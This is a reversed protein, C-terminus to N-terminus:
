VTHWGTLFSSAVQKDVLEPSVRGASERQLFFGWIFGWCVRTAMWLLMAAAEKWLFNRATCSSLLWNFHWRHRHSSFFSISRCAKSTWLGDPILGEWVREWSTARCRQPHCVNLLFFRYTSCRQERVRHTLHVPTVQVIDFKREDDRMLPNRKM